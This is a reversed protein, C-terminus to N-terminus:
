TPLSGVRGRVARATARPLRTRSGSTRRGSRSASSLRAVGHATIPKGHWEGWPSEEIEALAEALTASALRDTGQEDFVARIDGLLQVGLSEDDVADRGLEVGGRAGPSGSRALWDAIGLLPEWIDAARDGLEDLPALDLRALRDDNEEAWQELRERLPAAEAAITRERKREM